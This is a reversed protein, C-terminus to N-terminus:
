SENGFLHSIIAPSLTYSRDGTCYQKIQANFYQTIQPLRPLDSSAVTLIAVTMIPQIATLKPTHYVHIGTKGGHSSIVASSAFETSVVSHAYLQKEYEDHSLKVDHSGFLDWYIAESLEILRESYLTRDSCDCDILKEAKQVGEDFGLAFYAVRAIDEEDISHSIQCVPLTTKVPEFAILFDIGAQEIEDKTLASLDTRSLRRAISIAPIEQELCSQAYLGVEFSSDSVLYVVKKHETVQKYYPYLLMAIRTFDDPFIVVHSLYDDQAVLQELFLFWDLHNRKMPSANLLAVPFKNQARQLSQYCLYELNRVMDLQMPICFTSELKDRLARAFMKSPTDVLDILADYEQMAGMPYFALLARAEAPEVHAGVVRELNELLANLNTQSVEVALTTDFDAPLQHGLSVRKLVFSLYFLLAGRANVSFKSTHVSAVLDIIQDTLVHAQESLEAEVFKRQYYPALLYFYYIIAARMAWEDGVLTFVGQRRVISLGFPRLMAKWRRIDDLLQRRNTFLRGALSVEDSYQPYMAITLLGQYFREFSTMAAGTEILVLGNIKSVEAAVLRICVGSGKKTEIYSELEHQKLVTNLYKIDNSITKTSCSFKQAYVNLLVYHHHMMLEELLDHQRKNM